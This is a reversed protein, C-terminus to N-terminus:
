LFSETPLMCHLSFYPLVQHVESQNKEIKLGCKCTIQLFWCLLLLINKPSYNAKKNISSCTSLRCTPYTESSLDYYLETLISITDM